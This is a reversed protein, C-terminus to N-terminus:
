ALQKRATPSAHAEEKGSEIMKHAAIMLALVVAPVGIFLAAQDTPGDAVLSTIRAALLLVIFLAGARANELRETVAAIIIALGVALVPAGIFGRINSLAEIGQPDILFKAAARTPSLLFTAGAGSIFLGVTGLIGRGINRM